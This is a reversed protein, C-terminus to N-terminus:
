QCSIPTKVTEESHKGWYLAVPRELTKWQQSEANFQRLLRKDASIDFSKYQNPKLHIKKWGVLRYEIAGSVTPVRTYLQVVDSGEVRGTNKVNFSLTCDQNQSQTPSTIYHFESYSLGFGFPFLPAEANKQFWKYGVYKGEHYIVEPQLNGNKRDGIIQPRPMQNLSKPFSIPLRGSPNAKGSLIDAIAEGGQTGPYWAALVGSVQNLWPMAVAGGTELVVIVKKNAASLTQIVANQNDPLDLSLADNDEGIWQTAFVVVIDSSKAAETLEENTGSQMFRIHTTPLRKKLAEVPSSPFFIVPGPWDTPTLGEVAIGGRPYVKSSGGGSLVGRDAHGGVVLIQKIQNSLPLVKNDNKLLVMSETAAKRSILENKNIDLPPLQATSQPLVGTTLMAYIIRQAMDTLRTEPVWQQNVAEKLAYSFYPVLDFADGASEQDLGNLAAPITSHTAGWDSMVFGKFGWEQKLIRNLLFDSECAYQGNVKNYSCMVSAPKGEELAIQFALLDSERFAVEDIVANLSARNTEQANLAFHKLTSIIKNSQIGKIQAGVMVGTLLPDESAYEFNRGNLPERILNAAGALMVNFGFSKAEEGIMRGGEYALDPDWTAAIALGSPLATALRPTPGPQSAVGIGADTEFLAPIKANPLGEVYGASQPISEPHKPTQKKNGWNYYDNGFYGFVLKLKDERSLSQALRSAEAQFLENQPLPQNALTVSVSCMGTAFLVPAFLTKLRTNVFYRM